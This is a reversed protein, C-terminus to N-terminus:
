LLNTEDDKKYKFFLVGCTHHVPSSTCPVQDYSKAVSFNITFTIYYIYLSTHVRHERLVRLRPSRQRWPLWPKRRRPGCRRGRKARRLTRLGVLCPRPEM